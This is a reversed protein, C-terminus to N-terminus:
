ALQKNLRKSLRRLTFYIVLWIVLYGLLFIGTFLLLVRLSFTLWGNILYCTVYALYLAGCHYFACKGLSWTPVQNFVSVGAHVFALLYTSFVGLCAEGGTLTFEEVTLSLVGYVVGMILPGFGGFLMGRRFFEKWLGKM